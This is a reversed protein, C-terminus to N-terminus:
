PQTISKTKDQYFLLLIFGVISSIGSFIFMGFFGENLTSQFIHEINDSDNDILILYNTEAENFKSPVTDRVITLKDITAQLEVKNTQM